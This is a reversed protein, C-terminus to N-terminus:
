DGKIEIYKGYEVIKSNYFWNLWLNNGWYKYRKIRMNYEYIDNYLSNIEVVSANEDNSMMDLRYELSQKNELMVEYKYNETSKTYIAISGTVISVLCFVGCLFTSLIVVFDERFFKVGNWGLSAFVTFAVFLIISLITLIM